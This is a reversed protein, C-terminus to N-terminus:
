PNQANPINLRLINVGFFINVLNIIAWAGFVIILGIIAGTVAQRGREANQPNGGGGAMMAIGGGMLIFLLIIAVVILILQIVASIINAFTITNLGSFQGGPQLNLPSQALVTSLMKMAKM